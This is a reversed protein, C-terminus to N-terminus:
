QWVDGALQDATIAPTTDTRPIWWHGEVEDEGISDKKQVPCCQARTHFDRHSSQMCTACGLSVSSVLYTSSQVCGELEWPRALSSTSVLMM